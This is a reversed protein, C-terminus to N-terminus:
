LYITRQLYRLGMRSDGDNVSFGPFIDFTHGFLVYVAGVLLCIGISVPELGVHERSAMALIGQASNHYISPIPFEFVTIGQLLSSVRPWGSM